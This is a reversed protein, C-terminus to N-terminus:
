ISNEGHTSFNCFIFSIYSGKFSGVCFSKLLTKYLVKRFLLGKISRLMSHSNLNNAIYAFIMIRKIRQCMYYIVSVNRSM